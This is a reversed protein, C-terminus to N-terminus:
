LVPVSYAEAVPLSKAGDGSEDADAMDTMAVVTAVVVADPDFGSYFLDGLALYPADMPSLSGDDNLRWRRAPCDQKAGRTHHRVANVHNGKHMKGMAIDFAVEQDSSDKFAVFKGDYTAKIQTANPDVTLGLHVYHYEGAVMLNTGMERGICRPPILVISAGGHSRLSLYFENGSRMQEVNAFILRRSSQRSVLVLQNRSTTCVCCQILDTVIMVLPWGFLMVGGVILSSVASWHGFAYESPTREQKNGLHMSYFSLTV